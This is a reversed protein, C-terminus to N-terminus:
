TFFFFKSWDNASNIAQNKNQQAENTHNNIDINHENSTSASVLVPQQHPQPETQPLQQPQMQDKQPHHM